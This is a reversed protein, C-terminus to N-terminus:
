RFSFTETDWRNLADQLEVLAKEEVATNLSQEKLNDIRTKLSEFDTRFTRGFEEFEVIPTNGVVVISYTRNGM